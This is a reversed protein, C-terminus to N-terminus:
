KYLQNKIRCHRHTNQAPIDIHLGLCVNFMKLDGTFTFRQLQLDNIKLAGLILDLNFHNEPVEASVMVRRNGLLRYTHGGNVGDTRLRRKKEMQKKDLAWLIICQCSLRLFGKGCDVVVKEVLPHATHDSKFYFTVRCGDPFEGLIYLSIIGLGDGKTM